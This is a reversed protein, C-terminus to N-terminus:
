HTPHPQLSFLHEFLWFRTQNTSRVDLRNQVLTMLHVVVVPGSLLRSPREIRKGRCPVLAYAELWSVVFSPALIYLHEPRGTAPPQVEDDTLGDIGRMEM